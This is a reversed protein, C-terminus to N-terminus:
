VRLQDTAQDARAQVQRGLVLEEARNGSSVSSPYKCLTLLDNNTTVQLAQFVSNICQRQRTGACKCTGQQGDLQQGASNHSPTMCM